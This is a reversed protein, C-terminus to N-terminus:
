GLKIDGKDMRQIHHPAMWIGGGRDTGENGLQGLSTPQQGM